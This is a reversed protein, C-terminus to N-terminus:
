KFNFQQNKIFHGKVQKENIQPCRLAGALRLALCVVTTGDKELIMKM